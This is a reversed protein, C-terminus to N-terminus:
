TVTFRQYLGLFVIWYDAPSTGLPFGAPLSVPTVTMVKTSNDWSLSPGRFPNVVVTDRGTSDYWIYAAPTIYFMGQDSDFAPVSFTGSFDHAVREEHIVRPMAETVSLRINGDADRFEFGYSM